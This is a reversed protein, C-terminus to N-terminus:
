AAAKEERRRIRVVNSGQAAPPSGKVAKRAAPNEQMEPKVGGEVTHVLTRVLTNLSEAQASLEEAASAAEESTAANQQTVQDLQNMAKTIEQVGQAQENCATSIEGAMKTVGSVSQVIDDLVAGCEQAMVTGGEVKSKTAAVIADVKQISSELLGSIQEAAGGSMEALNGVEEAVVAFGKGHEGARAAEVSANFSLLKTQFVIDNIVKTKSDIERIVNVIEAIKANSENIERMSHIMQDVSEKGKNTGSLAEDSQGAANKSNENNKSVMSSMEEISAATEELSSAQETAAQSLQTSAAAVQGAAASVQASADSLSTSINRLNKVLNSSFLFSFLIGLATGALLSLMSLTTGLKSYARAELTSKAAWDRHYDRIKVSSNRGTEFSPILEDAVISKFENFEASGEDRASHYKELAKRVIAREKEASAKYTNFLEEEGSAFPIENYAKDHRDFESWEEDIFKLLEQKKEASLNPLTLRIATFIAMREKMIMEYLHRVNPLNTDTVVSYAANTKKSSWFGIGALAAAISILFLSLLYLKARLSLTKM